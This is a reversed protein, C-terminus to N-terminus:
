GNLHLRARLAAKVEDTTFAADIANSLIQREEEGTLHFHQEMYRFEGALTTGEIAMDDTNLTVKLGTRLLDMFPYAKMDPIAHTQRNSTPCMELTIGKEKLLRVTEPDEFCRVGHGIRGAGFEVAARISEPGDAEGAHITFPIGLKGAKAFLERYNETPFLAEAGALDVAVVGGDKVLYKRALEITELNQEENGIGRMCCLILNSKLGSAKMGDLVAKVAEEQTMGKQTHSQPSFRIEAYIVGQSAINELVMRAAERLAEPTQLLSIPLDFRALFDNLNECDPAVTLLRVLDSGNEPLPINQM